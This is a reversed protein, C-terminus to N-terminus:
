SAFQHHRDEHGAGHADSAIKLFVLTLLAFVLGQVLGVFLELGLFPIPAIYPVLFGVVVLLVEGAFINGFLRFTFSIIKAFEAVLELIGVFSGIPDRWPPVFFKGAYPLVGLAAIGFIQTAIVSILAVALTMNVDANMSRLIPLPVMHGNHLGEITISGVGPIIGMWNATVLFIFITGVLPFAKKALNEDQVVDRFFNFLGGVIMEMFSQFRGPIQKYGSAWTLAAMSFLFIMVFWAMVLTNRLEFAGIHGLTESALPPTELASETKTEATIGSGTKHSGFDSSIGASM